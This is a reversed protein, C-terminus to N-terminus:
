CYQKVDTATRDEETLMGPRPKRVRRGAAREGCGVATGEAPRKRFGATGAGTQVLLTQPQPM